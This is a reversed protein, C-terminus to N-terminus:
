TTAVRLAPMEGGWALSIQRWRDWSGVTVTEGSRTSWAMSQWWVWWMEKQSARMTTEARLAPQM